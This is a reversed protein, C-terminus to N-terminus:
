QDGDDADAGAGAGSGSDSDPTHTFLLEVIEPRTSRALDGLARDDTPPTRWGTVTVGAAGAAAEIDDRPLDGRAFLVAVGTGQGFLETPIPTLLGTGDS